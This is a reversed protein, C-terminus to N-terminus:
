RGNRKRQEALIQSVRSRHVGLEAAIEDQTCGELQALYVKRKFAQADEREIAQADQWRIKADLMANLASAKSM